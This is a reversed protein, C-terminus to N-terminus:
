AEPTLEGDAFIVKGFRPTRTTALVRYTSYVWEGTLPDTAEIELVKILSAATDEGAATATKHLERATNIAEGIIDTELLTETLRPLSETTM